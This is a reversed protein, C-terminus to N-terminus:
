FVVVHTIVRYHTMLFGKELILCFKFYQSYNYHLLEVFYHVVNFVYTINQEFKDYTLNLHIRLNGSVTM